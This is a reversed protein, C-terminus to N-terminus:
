EGPSVVREYIIGYSVQDRYTDYGGATELNPGTLILFIDEFNQDIQYVDDPCDTCTNDVITVGDVTIKIIQAARWSIELWIDDRVINDNTKPRYLSFEGEKPFISHEEISPRRFRVSGEKLLVRANNGGGLNIYFGIGYAYTKFHTNGTGLRVSFTGSRNQWDEGLEGTIYKNMSVINHTADPDKDLRWAGAPSNSPYFLKTKETDDAENGISQTPPVEEPAPIDPLLQANNIELQEKARNIMEHLIMNIGVCRAEEFLIITRGNSSNWPITDWADRLAGLKLYIRDWDWGEDTTLERIVKCESQEFIAQAYLYDLSQVQGDFKCEVSNGLLDTDSIEVLVREWNEDYLLPKIRNCADKGPDYEETPSPEPIPTEQLAIELTMIPTDTPPKVM